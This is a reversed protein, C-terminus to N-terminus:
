RSPAGPSVAPEETAKNGLWTGLQFSRKVDNWAGRYFLFKQPTFAGLSSNTELPLRLLSNLHSNVLPRLPPCIEGLKQPLFHEWTYLSKNGVRELTGFLRPKWLFSKKNRWARISGWKRTDWFFRKFGQLFRKGPGIGGSRTWFKSWAARGELVVEKLGRVWARPSRLTRLLRSLAGKAVSKIITKVMLITCIITVVVYLAQFLVGGRHTGTAGPIGAESGNPNNEDSEFNLKGAIM